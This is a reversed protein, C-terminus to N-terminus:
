QPPLGSTHRLASDRNSVRGRSGRARGRYSGNQPSGERREGRSETFAHYGRERGRGSRRKYPPKKSGQKTSNDEKEEPQEEPLSEVEVGEEGDESQPETQVQNTEVPEMAFPVEVPAVIGKAQQKTEQQNVELESASQLIHHAYHAIQKYTYGSTAQEESQAILKTAHATAAALTQPNSAKQSIHQALQAVAYLEVEGLSKQVLEKRASDDSVINAAQLLEILTRVQESGAQKSKRKQFKEEQKAIKLMQVRIEEYEKLQKQLGEKTNLVRQEDENIKQNQAVKKEVNAISINLKKNLGRMKKSILKLYDNEKSADQESTALIPLTTPAQAM